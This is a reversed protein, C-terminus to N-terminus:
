LSARFRRALTEFRTYDCVGRREYLLSGAHPRAASRAPDLRQLSQGGGCLYHLVVFPLLGLWIRWQSPYGLCLRLYRWSRARSIALRRVPGNVALPALVRFLPGPLGQGHYLPFQWANAGPLEHLLAAALVHVADHDPHGGEWALAYLNAVPEAGALERRLAAYAQTLHRILTGDSIGAAEGLFRCDAPAVGLAGLVRRSEANRLAIDQGGFDGNTLYLCLPRRGAAVSQAIVEFVGFEDDQHAFLFVDRM